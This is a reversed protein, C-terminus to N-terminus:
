PPCWGFINEYIRLWNHGMIMDVAEEGYGHALMIKEVRAMGTIDELGQAFHEFGCFDSGIGVGDPGYKQVLTDLHVFVHEVGTEREPSLMEPNFTIGVTGGRDFIERAQNLDINRPIDFLERIGTHSNVILGEFLNVLQWFCKSHLHAVDIVLGNEKLASIVQRGDHTLGDPYGVANGDGLRNRGAHTLGVIRIGTEKLQAIYALNGSLADANELLFLTALQDPDEKLKVMDDINHVIGIRDFHELTFGIIDQLRGFSPAGNFSDECYLATCFLRVGTQKAMDLTFPGEDLDGLLSDKARNMMYYPLDVHGDVYLPAQLRDNLTNLPLYPHAGDPDSFDPLNDNM